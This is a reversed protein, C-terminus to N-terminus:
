TILDNNTLTLHEILKELPFGHKKWVSEKILIGAKTKEVDLRVGSTTDATIDERVGELRDLDDCLAAVENGINAIFRMNERVTEIDTKTSDPLPVVCLLFNEKKNVAKKAQSSSMKVEQSGGENQISKVEIWLKKKGQTVTLEVIEFDAGKHVSKVKFKKGPFKEKLIQEVSEEVQKGVSQNKSITHIRDRSKEFQQLFLENDEQVHQLIERAQNLEDETAELLDEVHDSLNGNNTVADIYKIAHNLHNVNGRSKRLMETIVNDVTELDGIPVFTARILDLHSIDIAKLLKGIPDNQNLAGPDWDYGEFLNALNDAKLIDSTNKDIPIWSRDVVPKLWEAPYYQHNEDCNACALETLELGEPDHMVVCKTLFDWFKRARRSSKRIREIIGFDSEM